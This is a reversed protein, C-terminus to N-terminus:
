KPNVFSSDLPLATHREAAYLGSKGAVVQVDKEGGPMKKRDWREIKQTQEIPSCDDGNEEIGILSEMEGTIQDETGMVPNQLKAKEAVSLPWASKGPPLQYHRGDWVAELTKKTRNVVTVIAAM